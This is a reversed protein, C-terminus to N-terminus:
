NPHPFYNVKLLHRVPTWWLDAPMKEGTHPDRILKHARYKKGQGIQWVKKEQGASTLFIHDKIWRIVFRVRYRALVQLWPGSAYGRDRSM